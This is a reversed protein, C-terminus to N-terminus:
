LVERKPKYHHQTLKMTFLSLWRERQKWPVGGGRTRGDQGGQQGWSAPCLEEQVKGQTGRRPLSGRMQHPEYRNEGLDDNLHMKEAARGNLIGLGWSGWNRKTPIYKEM